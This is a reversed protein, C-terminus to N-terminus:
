LLNQAIFYSLAAGRLILFKQNFMKLLLSSVLFLHDMWLEDTIPTPSVRNNTYSVLTSNSWIVVKTFLTLDSDLRRVWHQLDPMWALSWSVKHSLVGVNRLHTLLYCSWFLIINLISLSDRFFNFLNDLM